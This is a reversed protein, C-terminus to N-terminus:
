KRLQQIMIDAFVGYGATPDNVLVHTVAGVFKNNQIIPAGSMGQIIGGTKELLRNDTIKIFMSKNNENNNYFVKQIEIDYKETKENELECMIQAKGAKIENRLAVQMQKSSSVNLSSLKSIGGYIGFRTNKSITGITDGKDISGRIEGPNGKEGKVISMINTTVLQGSAITIIDSTDIDTIGHGLAAFMKSSPEYFTMTGVGAASDRIWLGIKYSNDDVKVPSISTTITKDDRKYTVELNKGGSKNVTEILQDSDNIKENNIKIIRDGEQIGTNEYPKKGNIESMGVVLVGDTYLKMGIAKGMPIVATREVVNVKTEKLPIKGFLNLSVDITGSDSIKKKNINSATQMSSNDCLTLGFATKLNLEEGQMLIVRDPFFTVNCIYIQLIILFSLIITRKIFKM